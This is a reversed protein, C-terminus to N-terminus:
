PQSFCVSGNKKFTFNGVLIDNAKEPTLITPWEKRIGVNVGIYDVGLKVLEKAEDVTIPAYIQTIM